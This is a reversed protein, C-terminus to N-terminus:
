SSLTNKLTAYARNILKLQEESEKNGGNADPHFRKVLEKYRAKLGTLTLPLDLDLVALAEKEANKPTRSARASESARERGGPADGFSEFQRLWEEVEADYRRSKPGFPWTPRWWTTDARVHAEIERENMGAYYNWSANYTRVHDLCFWYYERLTERSRPARFEGSAECGPHDCARSRTEAHTRIKLADAARRKMMQDTHNPHMLRALM